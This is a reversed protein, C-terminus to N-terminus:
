RVTITRGTEGPFDRFMARALSQVTAPSITGGARSPAVARGRWVISGDSRRVLGVTLQTALATPAAVSGPTGPARAFLAAQTGAAVDVTAIFESAAPTAAPTFGLARLEDAVTAAFEPRYAGGAVQTAFRPEVAVEGRAIEGGLHTRTVSIGRPSQSGGVAACGTALAALALVALIRGSFMKPTM